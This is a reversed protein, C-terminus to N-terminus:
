DSTVLVLVMLDSPILWKIERKDSFSTLQLKGSLGKHFQGSCSSCDQNVSLTKKQCTNWQLM